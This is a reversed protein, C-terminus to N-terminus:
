IISAILLISFLIVFILCIGKKGKARHEIECEITSAILGIIAAIPELIIEIGDGAFILILCIFLAGIKVIRCVNRLYDMKEYM